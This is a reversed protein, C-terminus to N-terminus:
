PFQVSQPIVKRSLGIYQLEGEKDYFAYVGPVAPTSILGGGDERVPLAEVETFSVGSETTSESASVVLRERISMGHHSKETIFGNVHAKSCPRYPLRLHPCVEGVNISTSLRPLLNLCHM